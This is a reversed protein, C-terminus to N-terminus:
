FRGRPSGFGSFSDSQAHQWRKVDLVKRVESVAGAKTFGKEEDGGQDTTGSDPGEQLPTAEAFLKTFAHEPPTVPSLRVSGKDMKIKIPLTWQVSAHRFETGDAFRERLFADADNMDVFFKPRVFEANEPEHLLVMVIPEHDRTQTATADGERTWFALFGQKVGTTLRSQIFAEAQEVHSFTKCLIPEADIGRVLLCIRRRVDSGVANVHWSTRRTPLTLM